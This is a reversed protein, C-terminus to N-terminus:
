TTQMVPSIKACSARLPPLAQPVWSLSLHPFSRCDPIRKKAAFFPLLVAHDTILGCDHTDRM